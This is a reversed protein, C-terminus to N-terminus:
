IWRSRSSWAGGHQKRYRKLSRRPISQRPARPPRPSRGSGSCKTGGSQRPPASSPRTGANSHRYTSIRPRRLPLLIISMLMLRLPCPDSSTSYSPFSVNSKGAKAGGGAWKAWWGKAVAAQRARGSKAAVDLDIEEVDVDIVDVDVPTEPGSISATTGTSGLSCQPTPAVDEDLGEDMEIDSSADEQRDVFVKRLDPGQHKLEMGTDTRTPARAPSNPVLVVESKGERSTPQEKRPSFLRIPLLRPSTESLQPTYMRDATPSSLVDADDFDDDTWKHKHSKRDNDEPRAPSSVDSLDFHSISEVPSLYGDEQTVPDIMEDQVIENDDNDFVTRFQRSGQRSPGAVPTDPAFFRSQTSIFNEAEEEADSQRKRKATMDERM